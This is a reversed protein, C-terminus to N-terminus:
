RTHAYVMCSNRMLKMVIFLDDGGARKRGTLDSAKGQQAQDKSKRNRSLLLFFENRRRLAGGSLAVDDVGGM